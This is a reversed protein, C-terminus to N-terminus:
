KRRINEKIIIERNEFIFKSVEQPNIDPINLFYSELSLLLTKKNMPTKVKNKCFILKGDNIDFCDIDNVKM